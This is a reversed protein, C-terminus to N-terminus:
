RWRSCFGTDTVLLAIKGGRGERNGAIGPIRDIDRFDPVQLPRFFHEDGGSLGAHDTGVQVQVRIGSGDLDENCRAASSDAKVVAVAPHVHTCGPIGTDRLEAGYADQKGFTLGPYWVMVTSLGAPNTSEEFSTPTLRPFTLVTVM